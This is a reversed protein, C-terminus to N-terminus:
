NNLEVWKIKVTIRAKTQAPPKMCLTQDENTGLWPVHAMRVVKYDYGSAQLVSNQGEQYKRGDTQAV